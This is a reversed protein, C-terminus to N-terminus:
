VGLVPYLERLSRLVPVDACALVNDEQHGGSILYCRCGIARAVEADHVTDGLFVADAPDAGDRALFDRALQVKSAAYVDSLGLVQEFMGTLEPFSAVQARLQSQQSASIIVQRFGADRFRRLTEPVDPALPTGAFHAVYQENWERAIMPFDEGRVGLATYYDKVPFCFLRRYEEETTERYGHRAFVLNNVKVVLPVDAVLTGNWDWFVTM